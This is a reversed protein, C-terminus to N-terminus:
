PHARLSRAFFNPFFPATNCAAFCHLQELHGMNLIIVRSCPEERAAFLITILSSLLMPAFDSFTKAGGRCSGRGHADNKQHRRLM